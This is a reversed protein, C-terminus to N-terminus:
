GTRSDDPSRSGLTGFPVNGHVIIGMDLTKNQSKEEHTNDVGQECARPGIQNRQNGPEITRHNLKAEIDKAIPVHDSGDPCAIRGGAIEEVRRELPDVLVAVLPPM